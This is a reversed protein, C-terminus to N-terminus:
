APITEHWYAEETNAQNPKLWGDPQNALQLRRFYLDYLKSIRDMSFNNVAYRHIRMPDFVDLRQAAQIYDDYVQCRWGTIGQVITEPFAGHDSSIVPTGTMMAEVAVGGFPEFYQTPCFVAAARGILEAKQIPDNVPGLFEVNADTIHATRLSGQGAVVLKKGLIRCVEAAIAVGKRPILRGMYLFYDDKKTVLPLKEPDFYNPIIGDFHPVDEVGLEGYIRNAWARSEFIKYRAFVAEYGIGSEVQLRRNTLREAIAQQGYPFLIADDEASNQMVSEVARRNFEVVFDNPSKNYFESPDRDGYAADWEARTALDIKRTPVDAGEVGYHVIEWGYKPMMKCFKWVKQTFACTQFAETTISHPM